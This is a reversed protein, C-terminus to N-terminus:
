NDETQAIEIKISGDPSHWSSDTEIERRAEKETIDGQEMALIVVLDVADSFTEREFIQGLVGDYINVVLFSKM